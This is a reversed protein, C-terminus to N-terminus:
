LPFHLLLAIAWLVFFKDRIRHLRKYLSISNNIFAVTASRQNISMAFQDPDVRINGGGCSIIRSVAKGNRNVKDLFNRVVEDFVAFHFPSENTDGEPLQIWRIGFFQTDIFNVAKVNVS